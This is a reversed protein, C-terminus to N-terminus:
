SIRCTGGKSKGSNVRIVSSNFVKQRSFTPPNNFNNYIHYCSVCEGARIVSDGDEQSTQDRQAGM